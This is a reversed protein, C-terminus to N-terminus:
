WSQIPSNDIISSRRTGGCRFVRRHFPSVARLEFSIALVILRPVVLLLVSMATVTVLLALGTRDILPTTVRRKM